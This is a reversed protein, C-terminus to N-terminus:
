ATNVWEDSGDAFFQHKWIPLKAKIENVLISAIEFASERHVASVAVAFAVDGIKIDGYRHSVAVKVVDTTELVAKSILEIQYSASPHIEYSLKIVEKGGDHNRVVGAFIVVAGCADDSVLESIEAISISEQTVTARLLEPM